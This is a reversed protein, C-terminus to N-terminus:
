SRHGVVFFYVGAVFTGVTILNNVSDFPRRLPGYERLGTLILRVRAQASPVRREPQAWIIRATPRGVITEVNTPVLSLESSSSATAPSVLMACISLLVVRSKMGQGGSTMERRRAM